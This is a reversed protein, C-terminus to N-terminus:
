KKTSELSFQQSWCLFFLINLGVISISILKLFQIEARSLNSKSWFYPFTCSELWCFSPIASTACGCGLISFWCFHLCNCCLTDCSWFSLYVELTGWDCNYEWINELQRTWMWSERIFNAYTGQRSCGCGRRFSFVSTQYQIEDDTGFTGSYMAYRTPPAIVMQFFSPTRWHSPHCGM